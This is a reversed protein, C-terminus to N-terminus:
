CTDFILLYKPFTTESTLSKPATAPIIDMFICKFSAKPNLLNQSRAMKKMSYIQCSKCFTELYIRLEIDKCVNKTYGAMLSINSIHRLRHHLLELAVKKRLAIKNSKSMQKIKGLFAHKQQASHPLTVANKDKDGFYVTCFGKIFLCTNGLNILM